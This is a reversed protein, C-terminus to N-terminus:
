ASQYLQILNGCTDSFVAIIVPGMSAPKATFVVGLSQLRAYEATIDSVEFSALPISQAFMAEQFTKAAPNANPELVLELDGPGEPSTVTLWKYAGVPTASSLRTFQDSFSGLSSMGVEMCVETVSLDGTALLQRAYSLRSQIRYQHPTIGFLAEFQRIFHFPSIGIQRAIQRIGPPKEQQEALLRRAQCLRSFTDPTLLMLNRLKLLSLTKRISM